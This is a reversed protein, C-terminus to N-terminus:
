QEQHITETEKGYDEKNKNITEEILLVYEDILSPSHERIGKMKSKPITKIKEDKNKINSDNLGQNSPAQVSQENSDSNNEYYWEIAKYTLEEHRIQLKTLIECQMIMLSRIESLRTFLDTLGKREEIPLSDYNHKYWEYAKDYDTKEM